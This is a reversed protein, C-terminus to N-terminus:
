EMNMLKRMLEESKITGYFGYACSYEDYQEVNDPIIKRHWIIFPVPENTHTRLEVPTHHDPLITMCVPEKWYKIEEYIPKVIRKDIDNITKLKLEINGDHGAEDSAEIHLFVFDDKRLAEIAASAKNEYNTNSLGTIGDVNIYKLGALKGLGRILDVASIVDGRKIQPYIEMLSPMNPKYGGGWPWISNAPNKGLKKRTINIHHNKLLDQSQYILKNIIDATEKPTKRSEEIPHKIKGKATLKEWNQNPYDHPPSCSIYKSGDKIILLHRYGSGAIFKIKDNALKKNIYKILSCGEENSIHGGHHNIIFGNEITILNCRMVLDEPQIKYGISAAELPGRGEYVDKLKYGLIATNAVDSGSTFGDPITILRGTRGKKALMNMYEPQAYELLTKNGLSKIRYDAMGDGIIIVHKM